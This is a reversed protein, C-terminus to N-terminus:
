VEMLDWQRIFNQEKDFYCTYNIQKYKEVDYLIKGFTRYDIQLDNIFYKNDHTQKLTFYLTKM